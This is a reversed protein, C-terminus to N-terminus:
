VATELPTVAGEAAPSKEVAALVKRLYSRWGLRGAASNIVFGLRGRASGRFTRQLTMEVDSGGGEAPVARVEFTSTGPELVNSDTVLASVVGPMSWDYRSREWMRGLVWTGETMDAHHAGVEHVEYYRPQVNPWLRSRRDTTDRTAALVQEPSASTPASVTIHLTRQKM